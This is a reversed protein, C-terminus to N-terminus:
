NAQRKVSNAISMGVLRDYRGQPNRYYILIIYDNETEFHSGEFLSATGDTTGDKLYAYEFNYYGQKLLMTCEYQGASPNYTMLNNKDYAWNNLSGSVYMNGAAIKQKSPLTFFVSVYDADTDYNRGEQIAIYYKGNFDANYFYPKFERNESPFLFVNYGPSAYDISRVYETQYRLSKIDFYRFENGGSFINKDSLSNYKLENNSYFEPKLNKKANDWRGNQLIFAYFNRYPDIINNGINDITFDVQQRSNNDQNMLPKHIAVNINVTEETIMFRQTLVPKDPKGAPYVIIIYNGSLTLNVRDNPFSISYHYYGTTTNFSPKYDEVPNEINGNMYDQEFIDSKQWDKNCHIFSYYYDESQNDLLDFHLVLKENSNLRLFPYSLNWEQRYLQVTKIKDYYIMDTYVNEKKFNAQGSAYNCSAFFFLFIVPINKLKTM